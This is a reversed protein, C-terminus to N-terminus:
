QRSMASTSCAEVLALSQAKQANFEEETLL